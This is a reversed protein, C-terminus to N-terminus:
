NEEVNHKNKLTAFDNKRKLMSQIRLRESRIKVKRMFYVCPKEGEGSV